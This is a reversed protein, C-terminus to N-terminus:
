LIEFYQNVYTYILSKKQANRVNLESKGLEILICRGMNIYNKKKDKSKM